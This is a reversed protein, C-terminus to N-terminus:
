SLITETERGCGTGYSNESLFLHLLLSRLRFTRQPYFNTCVREYHSSLFVCHFSFSSGASKEWTLNTAQWQRSRTRSSGGDLLVFLVFLGKLTQRGDAIWQFRSFAHRSCCTNLQICTHVTTGEAWFIYSDTCVIYIRIYALWKLTSSSGLYFSTYFPVFLYYRTTRVIFGLEDLYIRVTSVCLSSDNKSGKNKHFLSCLQCLSYFFVCTQPSKKWLHFTLNFFLSAVLILVM